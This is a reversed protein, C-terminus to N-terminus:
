VGKAAATLNAAADQHKRISLFLWVALAALAVGALILAWEGPAGLAAHTADSPSAGISASAAAPAAAAAAGKSKTKAKATEEAAGALLAGKLDALAAKAKAYYSKRSPLGSTGGNVGHTVGVVDDADAYDNLHKEDYVHTAWFWAAALAAWPFEALKAPNAYFDVGFAKSLARYAAAGTNQIVGRGKCRVGDGKQTNGLDARGEYAKGSAYETTTALGDSEHACQALFHALRLPTTLSARSICDPLAAAFGERIAPKGHPAIALLVKAFDTM